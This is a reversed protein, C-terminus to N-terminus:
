QPPAGKDNGSVDNNPATNSNENTQPPPTNGNDGTQQNSEQSAPAKTTKRPKKTNTASADSQAAAIKDTVAAGVSPSFRDTHLPQIPPTPRAPEDDSVSPGGTTNLTPLHEALKDAVREDSSIVTEQSDPVRSEIKTVVLVEELRSLSVAPKVQISLFFERDKDQAVHQVTGVMLGPPFISDGGSTFVQEGVHVEEDAMINVIEPDSGVGGKLIGRLRSEKLVVGAGSTADTIELVQASDRFVERVKGVIGDPTIVPMDVTIGQRAGKGIYIVRSAEVGSTGIVQAAVTKGIYKEKFDLLVQLRRAQQADEALRARDVRLQDIQQQLDRNQKRVGQLNVYNAWAGRVGSGGHVFVKEVPTFLNVMWLRILRVQEGQPHSADVPRKIQVALVVVQIALAVVLAILNRYRQLFSEM